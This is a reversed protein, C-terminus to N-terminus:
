CIIRQEEIAKKHTRGLYLATVFWAAVIGFSVYSSISIFYTMGDIAGMQKMLGKRWNSIVSGLAKSGRSGYMEVFAQSKYKADKSLPIYLQKMSPGNLAYNIAKSMVMLWFLTGVVPYTKFTFVACAIIVPLIALSVGLGLLQQVKNVRLLICWLSVVGVWTAYESLYGLRAAVDSFELEVFSKFSFDLVTVIIEFASIVGFMAMLYPSSVLIRLGDFFGGQEEAENKAKFGVLQEQPTTAMFWRVLGMLGVISLAVGLVILALVPADHAAKGHVEGEGVVQLSTFTNLIYSV